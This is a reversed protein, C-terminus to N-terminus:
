PHGLTCTDIRRKAPPSAMDKVKDIDRKDNKKAPKQVPPYHTDARERIEEKIKSLEIKKEIFDDAVSAVIHFCAKIDEESPGEEDESYRTVLQALQRHKEGEVRRFICHCLGHKIKGITITSGDDAVKKYQARGKQTAVHVHKMEEVDRPDLEAIEATYGDPWTAKVSMATTTIAEIGIYDKDVDHQADASANARWAKKLNWDFGVHYTCKDETDEPSPQAAPPTPSTHSAAENADFLSEGDIGSDSPVVLVHNGGKQGKGKKDDKGDLDMDDDEDENGEEGEEGEEGSPAQVQTPECEEDGPYLEHIWRPRTAARLRKSIIMCHDRFRQAVTKKWDETEGSRLTWKVQTIVMDLAKMVAQRKFSLTPTLERAHVWMDRNQMITPAPNRDSAVTLFTPKRSAGMLILEAIKEHDGFSFSGKPSM